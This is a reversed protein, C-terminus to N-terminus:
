RRGNAETLAFRIPVLVWSEVAIGDRRAPSFRWRKSVAEVASDDLTDFGSSESIEVREVQGDAGVLVRLTVTGQEERRRAIAPYAPAPNTGYDASALSTGGGSGDGVSSGIGSGSSDGAGKSDASDLGGRNLKGRTIASSDGGDGSGHSTAPEIRAHPSAPNRSAIDAAHLDPAPLPANDDRRVLLHSKSRRTTPTPLAIPGTEASATTAGGTASRAAGGGSEGDGIEVLYALVWDGHPKPIAPAFFVFLAILAAHAAISAVIPAVHRRPRFGDHARNSKFEDDNLTAHGDERIISAALLL